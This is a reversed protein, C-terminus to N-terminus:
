HTKSSSASCSSSSSSPSGTLSSPSSTLSDAELLGQALQASRMNSLLALASSASGVGLRFRSPRAHGEDASAAAASSALGLRRRPSAQVPTSIASSPTAISSPSVISTEPTPITAAAQIQQRHPTIADPRAPSPTGHPPSSSPSPETSSGATRSHGEGEETQEEEEEEEDEESQEENENNPAEPFLSDSLANSLPPWCAVAEVGGTQEFYARTVWLEPYRPESSPLLSKETTFM